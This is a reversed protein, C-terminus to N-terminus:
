ISLNNLNEDTVPESEENCPRELERMEIFEIAEKLTEAKIQLVKKEYEQANIAEAKIKPRLEELKQEVYADIDQNELTELNTEQEHLLQKLEDVARM